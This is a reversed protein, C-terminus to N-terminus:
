TLGGQTDPLVGCGLVSKQTPSSCAQASDRLVGGGVMPLTWGAGPEVGTRSGVRVHWVCGASLMLPNGNGCASRTSLTQASSGGQICLIHPSCVGFEAVPGGEVRPFAMGCTTGTVELTVSVGTGAWRPMGVPVYCESVKSGAPLPSLLQCTGLTHTRDTM